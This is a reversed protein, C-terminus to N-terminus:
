EDHHRGKEEEMSRQEQSIWYWANLAGVTVGALLLALTWSMRGPWNFDIWLGIAIGFLTPIAISWGVVGFAGLGFWVSKEAKNRARIHRRAKVGVTTALESETSPENGTTVPAETPIQDQQEQRESM